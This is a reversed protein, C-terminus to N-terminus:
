LSVGFRQRMLRDIKVFREYAAVEAASPGPEYYTKVRSRYADKAARRDEPTPRGKNHEEIAGQLLASTAKDGARNAATIWDRLQRKQNQWELFRQGFAKREVNVLAERPIGERLHRM